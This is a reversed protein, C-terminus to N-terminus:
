QFDKLSELLFEIDDTNCSPMVQSTLSLGNSATFTFKLRDSGTEVFMWHVSVHDGISITTFKGGSENIQDLDITGAFKKIFKEIDTM